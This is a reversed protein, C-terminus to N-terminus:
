PAGSGPPAETPDEGRDLARWADATREEDTRERAPPPGASRGPREYRRGMGPWRRGRLVVLLGTVVAVLGAALVV